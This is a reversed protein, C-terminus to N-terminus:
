ITTFLRPNLAKIAHVMYGVAAALELEGGRNSFMFNWKGNYGNLRDDHAHPLLRKAAEVDDFRFHVWGPSYCGKGGNWPGDLHDSKIFHGRLLGADTTVVFDKGAAVNAALEPWKIDFANILGAVIIADFALAKKETSIYHRDLTMRAM